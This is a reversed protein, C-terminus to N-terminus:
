GPTGEGYQVFNDEAPERDIAVHNKRDPAVPRYESPTMGSFARFDRILHSQDYYGCDVAVRAWDVERGSVIRDLVAQFRLVRCFVKPTLGVDERFLEIFRKAGYGTSEGVDRVRAVTPAAAFRRLAAEVVAHRPRPDLLRRLLARELVAFMSSPTRSELLRERLEVAGRGWIDELAVHQNTLEGLPLGLFAAAGGPRFHVGVVSSQAATELVFPRSHAGCIVATAFERPSGDADLLRMRDQHLRIVLEVTGTPIAWERSHGPDYAGSYWLCDV